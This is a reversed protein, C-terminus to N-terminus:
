MDPDAHNKSSVLGHGKGRNEHLQELSSVDGRSFLELHIKKTLLKGVPAPFWALRRRHVSAFCSHHLLPFAQLLSVVWM